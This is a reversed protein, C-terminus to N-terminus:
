FVLIRSFRDLSREDKEKVPKTLDVLITRHRERKSPRLRKTDDIRVGADNDEQIDFHIIVSDTEESLRLQHQRYNLTNKWVLLKDDISTTTTLTGVWGNENQNEKVLITLQRVSKPSIQCSHWALLQYTHQNEDFLLGIQKYDDDDNIYATQTSSIVTDTIISM